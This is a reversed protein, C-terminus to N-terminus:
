DTRKARLQVQHSWCKELAITATCPGARFITIKSANSHRYKKMNKVMTWPLSNSKQVIECTMVYRQVPNQSFTGVVPVVMHMCGADTLEESM